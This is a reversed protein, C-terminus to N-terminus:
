NEETSFSATAPKACRYAYPSELHVNTECNSPRGICLRSSKLQGEGRYMQSLNVNGFWTVSIGRETASSYVWSGKRTALTGGASITM